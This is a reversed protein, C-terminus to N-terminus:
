KINNPIKLLVRTGCPIGKNDKLDEFEVKFSCQNIKNLMEIRKSTINTGHSKHKKPKQKKLETARERGIGNDEIICLVSDNDPVLEIKVMKEGKKNVLGHWISNEVYPQILLPPIKYMDTDISEHVIIEYNFGKELRLSELELYLEMADLESQIPITDFQSNDLIIRMLKSFKALYRTSSVNDNEYIYYQISNLTNFIFHPNMQQSLAQQRFKNVEKILDNRKKIIGIRTRYLIYIILLALIISSTRFWWTRWYPPTITISVNAPKISETNDENIAIVKFIYEGPSLYSLNVYNENTEVWDGKKDIKNFQYKYKKNKNNRYMLGVYEIRISNTNYSLIYRDKIITDKDLVAINKIYIPPPTNNIKIENIDIITLGNKTAIYASSDSVYIDNIENSSLGHTKTFSEINYNNKLKKDQFTIKNLGNITTVWMVNDKLYFSTISNNSLGDKTSINYVTDNEYVVIGNSKTGLWMNNHYTNSIICDIQSKLLENKDGLYNYSDNNISYEWLGNNCGCLLSYKTKNQCVTNIKRAFSSTRVITNNFSEYKFLGASSAFWINGFNDSHINKVIAGRTKKNNKKIFASDINLNSDKYSYLFKSAIWLKKYNFDYFLKKIIINENGLRIEKKIRNSKLEIVNNNLGLWLYTSDSAISNIDKNQLGDQINLIKTYLNPIYYIGDYLTSFWYGGEKDQLVSSVNKNRLFHHKPYNFLNTDTYCYVGDRTGLWIDNNSDKSIWIAGEQLVKVNIHSLNKIKILVKNSIIYINDNISIAIHLNTNTSKNPILSDLKSSFIIKNDKIINIPNITSKNVINNCTLKNMILHISSTKSVKNINGHSDILYAGNRRDGYLINDSSDVAFSCKLPSTSLEMRSQLSDNYEYEFISDNLFYSLKASHPVFWIRNKYDEFIEFVTNDPLGDETTFNRFEYGDYRSVGNDTAIWIYGKSDQFVHYTESTPLGDEITFHRFPRSQSFLSLNLSLLIILFLGRKIKLFEKAKFWIKNIISRIIM